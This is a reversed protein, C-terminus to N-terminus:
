ALGEYLNKLCRTCLGPHTGEDTAPREDCEVCLPQPVSLPSYWPPPEPEYEEAEYVVEEPEDEPAPEPEAASEALTAEARARISKVEAWAVKCFYLWTHQYGNCRDKARELIHILDAPDLGMRVFKSVDRKWEDPPSSWPWAEAFLDCAIRERERHRRHDEAAEELAKRWRHADISPTDVKPAGPSTSSKGSNCDTCATTLNKPADDGGLTTPVIHDVQLKVDPASRGCYQCTHNDRKLVEFRLRKSVAM